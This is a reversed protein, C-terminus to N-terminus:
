VITAPYSLTWTSSTFVWDLKVLLPDDQMNSWTYNSCSFPIEVLDLDSILENFLNMEGADGGNKNRNEPSRILNFDGGPVWDEFTDTDLNMLWTVFGQKMTAQAPGYINSVHMVKNDFRCVLKITVTYSNAQVVTGDFVSGNWVTLLGGSAGVSPFFAFQDLTRPCFKRIYFNDFNERKTEQICVVQCASETIKDRIADWKEQSNIGRINWFLIKNSRNNNESGM